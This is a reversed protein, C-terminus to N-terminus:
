RQLHPDHGEPCILVAIAHDRGSFQSVREALTTASTLLCRCTKNPSPSVTEARVGFDGLRPTDQSAPSTACAVALLTASHPEPIPTASMPGLEFGGDQFAQVFDASDFELDGTWDGGDWRSNELFGDEYEGRQFVQVLDSSNFEGNLDADGFWTIAIDGVWFALDDEDVVLNGDVDFLIDTSGEYIAELLLNVDAVDIRGNSNFDGPEGGGVAQNFHDVLQEETLATNWFAIEDVTGRFAAGTTHLFDGGVRFASASSGYGSPAFSGGTAVRDGNFYLALSSGTGVAAVHFWEEIPLENVPDFQWSVQGGGATWLQLTDPMAFSLEIVDRQGWLGIPQQNLERPRFWGSLTFADLDNLLSDVGMLYTNEGVDFAINNSGIGLLPTGDALESPGPAGPLGNVYQGNLAAGSTGSNRAVPDVENLRWYGRPEDNLVANPYDAQVVSTGGALWLALGAVRCARWFGGGQPNGCGM